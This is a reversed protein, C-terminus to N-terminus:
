KVGILLPYYLPSLLLGTAAGITVLANINLHPIQNSIFSFIVSEFGIIAGFLLHLASFHKPFIMIHM